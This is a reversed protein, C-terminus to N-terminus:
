WLFYLDHLNYYSLDQKNYSNLILTPFKTM